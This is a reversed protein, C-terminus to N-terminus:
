TEPFIKILNWKDSTQLADNNEQVFQLSVATSQDM